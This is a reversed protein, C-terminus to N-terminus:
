ECYLRREAASIDNIERRQNDSLPVEAQDDYQCGANGFAAIARSTKFCYGADKFIANRAYWLDSCRPTPNCDCAQAATALAAVAAVTLALTRM